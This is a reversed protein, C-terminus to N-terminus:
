NIDQLNVTFLSKDAYKKWGFFFLHHYENKLMENAPGIKFRRAILVSGIECLARIM